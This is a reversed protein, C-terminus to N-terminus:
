LVVSIVASSKSTKWVSVTVGTSHQVTCWHVATGTSPCPLDPFTKEVQCAPVRPRDLRELFTATSSKYLTSDDTSQPRTPHWNAMGHRRRLLFSSNRLPNHPRRRYADDTWGKRASRWEGTAVPEMQLWVSSNPGPGCICLLLFLSPALGHPDGYRSPFPSQRTTQEDSSERCLFSALVLDLMLSWAERSLITRDWDWDNAAQHALLCGAGERACSANSTNAPSCKCVM